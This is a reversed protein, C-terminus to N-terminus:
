GDFSSKGLIADCLRCVRVSERVDHVRVFAAGNLVSAAAAALSGEVRQNVPLDLVKGIFSKRSAGVMIPHGLVEFRRLDRILNLNHEVGKGFGIGPDLIVNEASVGRSEVFALREKFYLLIDEVVDDYHYEKQMTKPPGVTHMLVVPIGAKAVVDVMEPDFQMGSIDNVLAAGAHIAQRAVEAKTTDISIPIELEKKLREIVPIVRDLEEEESVPDSGPRTSEGGIDILDAGEGAMLLARMLATEPGLYRGGDSFSDPTVNLIGMVFSAKNTDFLRSGIRLVPYNV